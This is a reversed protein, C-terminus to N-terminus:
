QNLEKAKKIIEEWTALTVAGELKVGNIFFTPTGQVGLDLADSIDQLVAERYTEAALCAQIKQWNVGASTAIKKLDDSNSLKGQNAFLKDHLQWFKGQENACLGLQALMSSNDGTVPYNRFIFLVDKAYKNSITRFIPYEELCVPCEFDAFNVVVISSSANGLQPRDLNEALQRQQNKIPASTGIISTGVSVAMQEKIQGLVAGDLLGAPQNTSNLIDAVAQHRRNIEGYVAFVFSGAFGLLLVGAVFWLWGNQRSKLPSYPPKYNSHNDQEM